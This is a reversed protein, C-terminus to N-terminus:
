GAAPTAPPSWRCLVRERGTAPHTDVLGAVLGHRAYFRRAGHNATAVHLTWGDPCLRNVQQLLEAGAGQGQFDPDVFLQHLYASALDLVLFATIEPGAARVLTVCPLGFEARVRAEWHDPPAVSEVSPNASCWARRWVRALSACDADTAPRMFPQASSALARPLM